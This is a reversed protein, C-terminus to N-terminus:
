QNHPHQHQHQHQQQQLLQVLLDINTSRKVLMEEGMQEENIVATVEGASPDRGFVIKANVQQHRWMM